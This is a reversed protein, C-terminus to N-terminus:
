AYVCDIRRVTAEKSDASRFPSLQRVQAVNTPSAALQLQAVLVSLAEAKRADFFHPRLRALPVKM